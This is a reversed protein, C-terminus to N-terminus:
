RSTEIRRSTGTQAPASSPRRSGVDLYSFGPPAGLRTHLVAPRSTLDAPLPVVGRVCVAMRRSIEQDVWRWSSPNWAEADERAAFFNLGGGVRSRAKPRAHAM